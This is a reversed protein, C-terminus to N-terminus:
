RKSIWVDHIGLRNSLIKRQRDAEEASIFGSVRIRYWIKGQTEIKVSEAPIGLAKLRTVESNAATAHSLSTLNVVWAGHMSDMAPKIAIVAPNTAVPAPASPKKVDPVPSAEKIQAVTKLHATLQASLEDVRQSLSDTDKRQSLTATNNQIATLQSELQDMRDSLGFFMWLAGSAGVM